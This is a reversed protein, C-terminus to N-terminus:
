AAKTSSYGSCAAASLRFHTALAKMRSEYQQLRLLCRGLKRQVERQLLSVAEPAKMEPPARLNVQAENTM